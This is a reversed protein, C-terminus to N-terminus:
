RVINRGFNRITPTDSFVPRRTLALLLFWWFRYIPGIYPYHHRSGSIIDVMTPYLPTIVFACTWRELFFIINLALTFVKYRYMLVSRLPTLTAKM